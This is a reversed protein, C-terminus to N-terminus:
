FRETVRQKAGMSPLWEDVEMQIQSSCFLIEWHKPPPPPNFFVYSQAFSSCRGDDAESSKVNFNIYEGLTGYTLRCFLIKSRDKM